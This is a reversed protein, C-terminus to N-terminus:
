RRDNVSAPESAEVIPVSWSVRTEGPRSDFSFHGGRAAARAELNGLGSRHKADTEGRGDDIVDVTVRGDAVAIHLSVNAASAHKVVNTLAERTVAVIDEALADTIVLDVPGTFELQPNLASAGALDNVLDIIRHRVTPNDSRSRSLAFIATRIRTITADLTDISGNIRDSIPGSPLAGAVSQLELGMAFLQQIVHDHLDRAIRGREELLMVKQQDARATALQMALSIRGAFDAALELDSPTFRGGGTERSVVLAGRAGDSDVLPIAMTPGPKRGPTATYGSAEVENVLRPQGAEIVSAAISGASAFVVGQAADDSKSGATEVIMHEADHIPRVISVLDADALALTRSVLLDLFDGQQSSLLSATIEASATAWAQRRQSDAFLRANDIAFGATSALSVVLQEDEDTFEGSAQNTLYLNGYVEGRVRVPVGLFSDMPPHGVPFGASRPDDSLHRLRIPRQEDTLAGVLGLGVPLHGIARVEAESMGVHILQELSGDPALVGLAGYQADVLELATEVIKRLVVPLDLHEVVALNARLLARLRGQTATVHNALEVLTGLARDLDVRPADPFSLVGEEAM